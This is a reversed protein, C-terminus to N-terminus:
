RFRKVLIEWRSGFAGWITGQAPCQCNKACKIQCYLFGDREVLIKQSSALSTAVLVSCFKFFPVNNMGVFNKSLEKRSFTLAYPLHQFSSFFQMYTFFKSSRAPKKRYCGPPWPKHSIPQIHTFSFKALFFQQHHCINSIRTSKRLFRRPWTIQGVNVINM